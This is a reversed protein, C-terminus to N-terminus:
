ATCYKRSSEGMSYATSAALQQLPVVSMIEHAHTKPVPIRTLYSKTEDAGTGGLCYDKPTVIFSAGGHASIQSLARYTTDFSEDDPAIGILVVNKKYQDDPQHVMALPGHKFESSLYAKSPKRTLEEFKLAAEKAVPISLGSGLIAIGDAMKLSNCFKGLDSESFTRLYNGIDEASSGLRNVVVDLDESIGESLMRLIAQQGTYSKTAAVAFEPGCKLPINLDAIECPITSLPVNSISVIPTGYQHKIDKLTKYLEMTEGSQTLAIILSDDSFIKEHSKIESSCVTRADKGQLRLLYEGCEAANLSSGSGVLFIRDADRIGGIVHEILEPDQDLTSRLSQDQMRVERLTTYPYINAEKKIREWYTEGRDHCTRRINGLAEGDISLKRWDWLGPIKTAERSVSKHDNHISIGDARITAIDKDQLRIFSDAYESLAIIDSSAFAENKGIGIVLPSDKRAAMITDPRSADIALLAYEGQIEDVAKGFAKDFPLGEAKFSEILHPVVETDTKSEFIHRIGGYYGTELGSRLEAHNHVVGNHVVSITNSCDTHPHANNESVGGHTAWRTHGIGMHSASSARPFRRRFDKELEPISRISKLTDMTKTGEPNVRLTSIGCSDHGRYEVGTLNRFLIPVAKGKEGIYGVIGCM